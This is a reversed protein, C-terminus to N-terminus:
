KRDLFRNISDNEQAPVAVQNRRYFDGFFFACKNTQVVPLLVV